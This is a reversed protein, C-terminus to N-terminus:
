RYAQVVGHDTIAVAKHGWKHALSIIDGASSVADKASMNTHCHLEVRKLGEFSDTEEYKKVTALAKVDVIFDRTWSDFGYDGNVIVIAGDHLPALTKKFALADANMDKSYKPDFFKKVSAAFSNTGDSFFFKATVMKKGNRTDKDAIECGFVEGWAAIKIGENEDQPPAIERLPKVNKDIKRGLFIEASDVYIPLSDKPPKSFDIEVKPEQAKPSYSPASEYQEFVPPAEPLPPLEIEVAETQGTFEVTIERNFHQKIYNIFEKDFGCALITDLGGHALTVGVIDGSLSYEAGTFYGNVAAKKIKLCDIADSIADCNLSAANFVTNVSISSLKLAAKIKNELSLIDKNPIYDACILSLELNRSESVLNCNEVVAGKFAQLMEADIYQGFLEGLSYM